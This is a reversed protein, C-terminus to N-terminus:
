VWFSYFSHVKIRLAILQKQVHLSIQGINRVFWVPILLFYFWILFKGCGYASFSICHVENIFCLFVVLFLCVFCTVWVLCVASYHLEFLLQCIHLTLLSEKNSDLITQELQRKTRKNKVKVFQYYIEIWTHYCVLSQKSM